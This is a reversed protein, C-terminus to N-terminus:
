DTLGCAWARDWKFYYDWFNVRDRTVEVFVGDSRMNKEGPSTVPFPPTPVRPFSKAHRHFLSASVTLREVHLDLGTGNNTHAQFHDDYSVDMHPYVVSFTELSKMCAWPIDVMWARVPYAPSMLGRSIFCFEEGEVATNVLYTLHPISALFVSGKRINKFIESESAHGM